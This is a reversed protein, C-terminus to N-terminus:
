RRRRPRGSAHSAALELALQLEDAPIVALHVTTWGQEGWRGAVPAFAEPATTCKLAQEDPSLKLNATRGDAALTAFIRVIKFAARDFHQAETAGDLALAARRFQDAGAM